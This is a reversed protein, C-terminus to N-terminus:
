KFDFKYSSFIVFSTELHQYFELLALSSLFLILYRTKKIRKLVKWLIIVQDSELYLLLCALVKLLHGDPNNEMWYIHTALEWYVNSIIPFM